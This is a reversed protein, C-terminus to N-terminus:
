STSTGLRSLNAKTEKAMWGTRVLSPVVGGVVPRKVPIKAVGVNYGYQPATRSSRGM